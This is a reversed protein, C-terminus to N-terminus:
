FVFLTKGHLLHLPLILSSIFLSNRMSASLTRRDPSLFRSRVAHNAVDEIPSLEEPSSFRNGPNSRDRLRHFFKCRMPGVRREEERINYAAVCLEYQESEKDEVPHLFASFVYEM